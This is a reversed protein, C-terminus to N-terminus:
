THTTSFLLAARRAFLTAKAVDDASYANAADLINLSGSVRGGQLVPINMCAGCGLGQIRPFDPFMRALDTEDQGLWAEGREIVHDGWPSADLRKRGGVPFAEPQTTYIRAAFPREVALATFLRHGVAVQLDRALVEFSDEFPRLKADKLIMDRFSACFAAQIADSNRYITTFAHGRLLNAAMVWHQDAQTETQGPLEFTKTGFPAWCSGGNM